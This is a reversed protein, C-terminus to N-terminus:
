RKAEMVLRPEHWGGADVFLARARHANEMALVARSLATEPTKCKGTVTQWLKAGYPRVQGIYHGAPRYIHIHFDRM